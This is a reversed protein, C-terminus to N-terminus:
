HLSSKAKSFIQRFLELPIECNLYVLVCGSYDLVRGSYNLIRVNFM